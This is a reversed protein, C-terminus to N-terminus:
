INNAFLELYWNSNLIEEKEIFKDKLFTDKKNCMKSKLLYDRTKKRKNLKIFKCMLNDQRVRCATFLFYFM